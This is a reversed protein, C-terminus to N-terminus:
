AGDGQYKELLGALQGKDEPSSMKMSMVEIDTLIRDRERVASEKAVMAKAFREEADSLQQTLEEKDSSIAHYDRLKASLQKREDEHDADISELRKTLSAVEDNLKAVESESASSQENAKELSASLDSIKQELAQKASEAEDAKAQLSKLSEEAARHRDQYDANESLAQKAKALEEELDAVNNAAKSVDEIKSVQQEIKTKQQKSLAQLESFKAKLTELDKETKELQAKATSTEEESSQNIRKQEELHGTVEELQKKLTAKEVLSKEGQDSQESLSEVAKDARTTEDQLQSSLNTIEQKAESLETELKTVLAQQTTEAQGSAETAEELSAKLVNLEEASEAVEAKHDAKLQELQKCLHYIETKAAEFQKHYQDAHLKEKEASEQLMKTNLQSSKLTAVEIRAKGLNKQLLQESHTKNKLQTETATLQKKLSAYQKKLAEIDTLKAVDEDPVPEQEAAKGSGTASALAISQEWIKSVLLHLEAPPESQPASEEILAHAQHIVDAVTGPQFGAQENIRNLTAPKCQNLANAMVEVVARLQSSKDANSQEAM